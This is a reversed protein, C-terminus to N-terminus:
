EMERQGLGKNLRERLRVRRQLCCQRANVPRLDEGGALAVLEPTGSKLPASVRRPDPDRHVLAAPPHVVDDIPESARQLVRGEGPRKQLRDFAVACRV